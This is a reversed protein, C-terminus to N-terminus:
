KNCYKTIYEFAKSEGLEGSKSFDECAQKNNGLKLYARGRLFYSNSIKPNLSLAKNCDEICGKWNSLAFKTEQRSDYACWNLPDLEIAKNLDLLAEANKKLEFKVWGRNNYAMSFKPNLEIAKSYDHIAGNKDGLESKVSGRNYYGISSLPEIEIQKNFDALSGMFDKSNYKVWGRTSYSLADDNKLEIFKNLDILAQSHKGINEYAVGRNRYSYIFNPDLQILNTYDIIAQSYKGLNLNENGSEWYKKPAEKIRLNYREIEGDINEKIKDLESKLKSFDKEDMEILQNHDNDIAKIFETETIKIKLDLVIWDVLKDRYAKNQDYRAQMDAGTKAILDWNPSIPVYTSQYKTVTPVYESRNGQSNASNSKDELGKKFGRNYGDKYNESSEGILPIPTVPPIPPICGFDNYCFGEKYGYQFGKDYNSYQCFAWTTMLICIATITLKM